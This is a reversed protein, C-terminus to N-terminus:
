LSETYFDCPGDSLFDFVAKTIDTRNAKLKGRAQQPVLKIIAEKDLNLYHFDEKCPLVKRM